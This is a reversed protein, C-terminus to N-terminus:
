NPFFSNSNLATFNNSITQFFISLYMSALQIVDTSLIIPGALEYNKALLPTFTTRDTAHAKETKNVSTLLLSSRKDGGFSCKVSAYINLSVFASRYVGTKLTNGLCFGQASHPLLVSPIVPLQNSKM